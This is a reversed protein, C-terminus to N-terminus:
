QRRADLVRRSLIAVALSAGLYKFAPPLSLDRDSNESIQSALKWAALHLPARALQSLGDSSTSDAAVMSELATAMALSIGVRARLRFEAAGPARPGRLEIRQRRRLRDRLNYPEVEGLEAVLLALARHLTATILCGDSSSSSPPPAPPGCWCGPRAPQITRLRSRWRM